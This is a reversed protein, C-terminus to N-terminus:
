LDRVDRPPPFESRLWRSIDEMVPYLFPADRSWSWQRRHEPAPPAIHVPITPGESCESPSCSHPGTDAALQPPTDERHKEEFDELLPVNAREALDVLVNGLYNAFHAPEGANADTEGVLNLPVEPEEPQPVSGVPGIQPQSAVALVGLNRSNPNVFSPPPAGEPPSFNSSRHVVPMESDSEWSDFLNVSEERNESHSIEPQAAQHQGGLQSRKKEM